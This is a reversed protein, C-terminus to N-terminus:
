DEPGPNKGPHLSITIEQKVLESLQRLLQPELQRSKIARDLARWDLLSLQEWLGAQRILNEL